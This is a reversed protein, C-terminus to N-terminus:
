PQIGEVPAHARQVEALIDDAGGKLLQEAVDVGIASASETAGRAVARAARAGDTSIVIGSVTMTGNSVDAYAGIPMQCGGGLRTVVAREARLAAASDADDITTM